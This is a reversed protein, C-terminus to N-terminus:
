EQLAQIQASQARIRDILADADARTPQAGDAFLAKFDAVAKSAAADVTPYLALIAEVIEIIETPTMM